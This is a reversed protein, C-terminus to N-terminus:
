GFVVWALGILTAAFALAVPLLTTEILVDRGSMKGSGVPVESTLFERLGTSRSPWRPDKLSYSALFLFLVFFMVFFLSVIVLLYDTETGARFALWVVAIFWLSAAIGTQVVIPHVGAESTELSEASSAEAGGAPVLDHGTERDERLKERAITSCFVTNLTEPQVIQCIAELYPGVDALLDL